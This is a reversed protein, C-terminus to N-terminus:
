STSDFTDGDSINIYHWPAAFGWRSDSRIEDAWTSARALSETGLIEQVGQLARESLRREAILGVIRHGNGGWFAASDVALLLLVLVAASWKMVRM